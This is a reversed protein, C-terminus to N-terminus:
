FIIPIRIDDISLQLMYINKDSSWGTKSFSKRERAINNGYSRELYVRDEQHIIQNKANRNYHKTLHMCEYLGEKIDDFAVCIQTTEFIGEEGIKRKDFFPLIKTSKLIDYSGKHIKLTSLSKTVVENSLKVTSLIMDSKFNKINKDVIKLIDLSPSISCELNESLNFIHKNHRHYESLDLTHDISNLVDFAYKLENSYDYANKSLEADIIKFSSKVEIRGDNRRIFDRKACNFTELSSTGSRGRNHGLGKYDYRNTQTICWHSGLWMGSDGDATVVKSGVGISSKKILNNTLKTYNLAEYFLDAGESVLALSGSKHWIWACKTQLVGNIMTNNHLLEVLNEPTIELDFGAPDTIRIVHRGSGFWDTSRKNTTSLRFGSRPKSNDVEIPELSTDRWNKWSIPKKINGKNDEYTAFGLLGYTTDSRKNLGVLIKPPLIYTQM